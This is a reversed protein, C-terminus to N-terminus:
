ASDRSKSDVNESPDGQILSLVPQIRSDWSHQQQIIKAVETAPLYGTKWLNYAEHIADVVSSKSSAEWITVGSRILAAADESHTAIIGLGLAAYEYLKLPSHYMESSSTAVHGSYGVTWSAMEKLTNVRSLRGLFSVKTSIGLLLSLESLEAVSKGEGIIRVEITDDVSTEAVAQLLLELNQWPVLAGVFGIVFTISPKPTINLMDQPVANPIVLIKEASITAFELIESSLPTSVAIVLDARRYVRKEIARALSTFLIANRDRATEISMIGNSEVVCIAKKRQSHFCTLHQFVATREYILQPSTQRSKAAVWLGSWLASAIRICDIVFRKPLNPNSGGGEPASRLGGLGPAENALLVRVKLGKREMASVFNTIHSRPGPTRSDTDLSIRLGGVLYDVKTVLIKSM